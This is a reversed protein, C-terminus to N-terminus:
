FMSVHLYILGVRQICQKTYTIDNTYKLLKSSTALPEDGQWGIYGDAREVIVSRYHHRSMGTVVDWM